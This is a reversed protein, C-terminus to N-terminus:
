LELHRFARNQSVSQDHHDAGSVSLVFLSVDRQDAVNILDNDIKSQKDVGDVGM